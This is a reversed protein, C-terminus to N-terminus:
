ILYGTLNGRFRLAQTMVQRVIISPGHLHEPVALYKNGTQGLINGGNLHFTFRGELMNTVPSMLCMWLPVPKQSTGGTNTVDDWNEQLHQRGPNKSFAM